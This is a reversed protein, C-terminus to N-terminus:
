VGRRASTKRSLRMTTAQIPMPSAAAAPRVGDLGGEYLPELFVAITGPSIGKVYAYRHTIGPVIAEGQRAGM